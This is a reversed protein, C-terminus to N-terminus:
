RKSTRLYREYDAQILSAVERGIETKDKGTLGLFPRLKHGLQGYGEHAGHAKPRDKRDVSIRFCRNAHIRDVHLGSLMDGYYTLDAYATQLGNASRKAKWKASYGPFRRGEASVGRQTREVIKDIVAGGIQQVTRNRLFSLNNIKEFEKKIIDSMKFNIRLSGAKPSRAM